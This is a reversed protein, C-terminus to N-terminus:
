AAILARVATDIEHAIGSKQLAERVLARAKQFGIGDPLTVAAAVEEAHRGLDSLEAHRANDPDYTPIPLYWVYMDFDRAGFLGRSQLPAVLEGTVSANLVACLYRGEAAGSVAAWYLKHDIVARDDEIRAAALTTGSKTYVVRQPPIPFQARLTRQFDLREDLSLNPPSPPMERWLREGERLWAALRPYRDLEPDTGHLLHDTWPIVAHEPALLRHPLTTAGLHVPRIFQTEVPIPGRDPLEKWPSKEQRSRKSTVMTQNAPLGLGGVSEAAQVMHLVRPVITAGQIFRDGYPSRRGTTATGDAVETRTIAEKAAAWTSSAPVRGSWKETPGTIPSAGATPNRDYEGIVVSSPVPFIHPRISDLDWADTFRAIGGAGWKGQRLGEAAKRSLTALPMVFGFRGTTKLYLEACRVLFYGSLDQQTTVRGGHWLNRDKTRAQYVKKMATAMFRYSLWPPNGIMRDVRGDERTLWLPRALNRVYYGWIHNRHADHLDCLQSFTTTLTQHDQENLGYPRLLTTISPVESGRPRATAKDTLAAVLRDFRTPDDMVALPFHLETAFLAADDDTLVTLGDESLTDHNLQWQVSDGLYVPISLEGRDASLRDPGIALLYTVRALTVAVPHVDMGVVHRTVHELAARNDPDSTTRATIVARVAHFLFTGSGCAPDLIRQNAPDDVVHEVIAEALWDPTYYEGLNHREDAAIVSEYLHKLVDHQVGAWDFRAVRRAIAQILRDGGPIEAPWDFFDSEVVGHVGSETFRRGTVLDRPDITEIPIGLLEHAILEAIIVLYTHEIFLDKDSRFHEGFATRLLKAWLERKLKLEPDSANADWLDALTAKDLAHAPSTAGFRRDIEAPSPSLHDTTSLVASLWSVLADTDDAGRVTLHDVESLAGDHTLHYLRWDVGDTLIGVYRQGLDTTRAQVYSALQTVADALVAAAKLDKKVEIVCLGVEVDIRRREGAQTELRVDLEEEQLDLGGHLLLDRVAAQVDAETRGPGRRALRNVLETAPLATSTM